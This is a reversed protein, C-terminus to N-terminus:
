GRTQEEPTTEVLGLMRLDDIADEFSEKIDGPAWGAGIARGNRFASWSHGPDPNSPLAPGAKFEIRVEPHLKSM